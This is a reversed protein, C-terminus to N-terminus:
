PLIGGGLPALLQRMDEPMPAAFEMREGTIPHTFRLKHAHLAQRGMRKDNPNYLFDGVLPHGIHTLHVRIQHTRGTELQLALISLQRKEDTQLLRYHTVAREGHELDVRRMIASDPMRGLPLDVTGEPELDTGEVIALYERDIRRAAMERYLISCSVLHKALITLGTTDRDLRNVCRYIFEKGQEKFYWAAANGLTNEYHNMSPHIPMHAPKNVIVLDEDEYVIPFPLKVPPIKQSVGHEQIHIVLVDEGQLRYNLYEWRPMKQAQLQRLWRDSSGTLLFAGNEYILVSEQMQKLQTLNQNSYGKDHLFESIKHGVFSQPIPYVLFREM